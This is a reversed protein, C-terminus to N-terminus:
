FITSPLLRSLVGTFATYMAEENESSDVMLPLDLEALRSKSMGVCVLGSTYNVMFAISEATVQLTNSENLGQQNVIVYSHARRTQKRARLM